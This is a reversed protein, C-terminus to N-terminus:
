TIGLLAIRQLVAGKSGASSNIISGVYVFSNVVKFQGDTVEITSCSYSNGSQLIKTKCWNSQVGTHSQPQYKHVSQFHLVPCHHVLNM